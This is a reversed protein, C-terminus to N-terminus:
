VDGKVLAVGGVSVMVTLSPTLAATVLDMVTLKTSLAAGSAPPSRERLATSSVGMLKRSAGVVSDLSSPGVGCCIRIMDTVPPVIVAASPLGIDIPEAPRNSFKTEPPTSTLKEGSALRLALACIM